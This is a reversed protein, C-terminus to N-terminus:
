QPVRIDGEVDMANDLKCNSNMNTPTYFIEPKLPSEFCFESKLSDM